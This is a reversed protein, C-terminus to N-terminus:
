IHILSLISVMTEIGMEHLKAVMEGPHPFYEEDFRYDGCRPWHYYDIVIVDVPINRKKYESAIDLVQQANYYRLKCQWFGLGYEPMMPSKGTVETYNKEIDGPREGATIWYDLQDTSWAEWETTNTGFHVEGVSPNNWLFGYGLSSVYFPVSAQSNRHALELNCGKLNMREQQYQGMGYLKEKDNSQFSAKLYFSGGALSRFYRAKLCLAGGNPIEQLLVEGKENYFTIQLANGWGQRYLVAKIRGNTIEASDEGQISIVADHVAVEETLASCEESIEGLVQRKYM